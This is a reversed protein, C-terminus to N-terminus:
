ALPIPLTAISASHKGHGFDFLDLDCAPPHQAPQLERQLQLLLVLEGELAEISATLLVPMAM